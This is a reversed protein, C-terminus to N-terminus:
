RRPIPKERARREKDLSKQIMLLAERTMRTKKHAECSNTGMDSKAELLMDRALVLTSGVEGNKMSPDLRQLTGEELQYSLSLLFLAYEVDAAAHWVLDSVKREDKDVFAKVSSELYNVASEMAKVIKDRSSEM